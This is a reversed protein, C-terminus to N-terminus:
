PQRAVKVPVLADSTSGDGLQGYNNSGWCYVIGDTTVGCTHDRGAIVSRFHLEGAVKVPAFSLATTGNGLQGARNDGWCYATSDVTVGCTYWAGADLQVFQLNGAVPTPVDPETFDGIGLGGQGNFGWCYATTGALGCTHNDGATIARFRHNGAVKASGWSGYDGPVVDVGGGLAGYDNSGICFADGGVAVYCDHNPGVSLDAPWSDVAMTSDQLWAGAAPHGNQDYFHITANDYRVVGYCVLAKDAALACLRDGGAAAHLMEDAGFLRTPSSIAPIDPVTGWCYVQHAQSLACAGHDAAQIETAPAPLPVRTPRHRDTEGVGLQGAAGKGWCYADGRTSLGCTFEPGLSVSSLSVTGLSPKVVTFDVRYEQALADGTLDRVGQGVVLSYTAGPVLSDAAVFEAVLGDDSLTVQGQVPQDRLLVEITTGNVTLRDIPESFVIHARLMMPADTAGRVPSSRIVVPPVRDRKIEGIYRHAGGTSDVATLEITDGVGAAFAVPDLAGDVIAASVSSGGARDRLMASRGGPITGAALSAFARRAVPTGSSDPLSVLDSVLLVGPREAAPGTVDAGHEGCGTLAAALLSLPIIGTVRVCRRQM